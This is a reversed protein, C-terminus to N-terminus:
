QIVHGLVTKCALWSNETRADSLYIRWQRWGPADNTRVGHGDWQREVLNPLSRSWSRHM